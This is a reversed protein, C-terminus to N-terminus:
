YWVRIIYPGHHSRAGRDMAALLLGVSSPISREQGGRLDLQLYRHTSCAIPIGWWSKMPTRMNEGCPQNSSPM